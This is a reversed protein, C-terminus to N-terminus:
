FLNKFIFLFFIFLFPSMCSSINLIMLSRVEPKRLMAAKRAGRGRNQSRVAPDLRLYCSWSYPPTRTETLVHPHPQAVEGLHGAGPGPCPEWRVRLGRRSQGCLGIAAPGLHHATVKSSTGHAEGPLFPIEQILSLSVQVLIHHQLVQCKDGGQAAPTLGLILCRHLANRYFTDCTLTGM